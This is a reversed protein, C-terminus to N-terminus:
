VYFKTKPVSGHSDTLLAEARISPLRHPWSWRACGQPVLGAGKLDGQGAPCGLVLAQAVHQLLNVAKKFLPASAGGALAQPPRKTLSQDGAGGGGAM